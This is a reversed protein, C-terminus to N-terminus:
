VEFTTKEKRPKEKPQKAVVFSEVVQEYKGGIADFIKDHQDQTWDYAHTNALIQLDSLSKLVNTVRKSAVRKFNAAKVAQRPSAEQSYNAVPDTPLPEESGGNLMELEGM